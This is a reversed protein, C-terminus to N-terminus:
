QYQKLETYVFLLLVPLELARHEINYLYSNAKYSVVCAFVQRLRKSFLLFICFKVLLRPKNEHKTNVGCWEAAPKEKYSFRGALVSRDLFDSSVCCLELM